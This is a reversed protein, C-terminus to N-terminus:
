KMTMIIRLYKSVRQLWPCFNPAAWSLRAGSSRLYVKLGFSRHMMQYISSWQATLKRVHVRFAKCSPGPHGLSSRAAKGAAKQSSLVGCSGIIWTLSVGKLMVIRQVRLICFTDFHLYALMMKGPATTSTDMALRLCQCRIRQSSVVLAVLQTTTVWTGGQSPVLQTGVSHETCGREKQIKKANEKQQPPLVASRTTRSIVAPWFLCAYANVLETQMIISDRVTVVIM